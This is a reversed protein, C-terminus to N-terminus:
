INSYVDIMEGSHVAAILVVVRKGKWHLAIV